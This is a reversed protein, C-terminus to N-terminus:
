NRTRKTTRIVRIFNMLFTSRRLGTVVLVLHDGEGRKPPSSFEIRVSAGLRREVEEQVLEEMRSPVGPCYFTEGMAVLTKVECPLLKTREEEKILGRFIPGVLDKPPRKHNSVVLQPYM